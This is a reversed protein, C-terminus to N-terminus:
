SALVEKVWSEQPTAPYYENFEETSMRRGGGDGMYLFLVICGYHVASGSQALTAQLVEM